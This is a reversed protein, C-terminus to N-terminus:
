TLVLFMAAIWVRLDLKTAHMPTKTTVTFQGRCDRCQYLGQRAAEGRIEGSNTSGCHPCFRGAPWILEELFLRAHHESPLRRWVDRVSKLEITM